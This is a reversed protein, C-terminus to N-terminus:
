SFDGDAANVMTLAQYARQTAVSQSSGVHARLADRAAPLRQRLVLETIEIHEAITTEMRGEAMYDYMRVARIRQNVQVLSRTLAPNGSSDLLTTHFREDEAVFGADPPPPTGQLTYLAALEAELTATDHRVNPDDIARQIGRLELTVRLEYLDSLEQFSPIRLHLGGGRREVLGDAQLRTFAERVPTRSVGFREAIREEALREYPSIRGAMLDDRLAVYVRDRLQGDERRQVPVRAGVQPSPVTDM